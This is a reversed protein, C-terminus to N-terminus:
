RWWSPSRSGGRAIAARSRTSWRRGSRVPSSAGIPPRATSPRRRRSRNRWGQRALARAEALRERLEAVPASSGHREALEALHQAADDISGRRLLEEIAATAILIEEERRHEAPSKSRRRSARACSTRAIRAHRAGVRTTSRAARKPRSPRLAPARRDARRPHRAPTPARRDAAAVGEIPLRISDIAATSTTSTSSSPARRPSPM